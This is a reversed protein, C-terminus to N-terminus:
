KALVGDGVKVKGLHLHHPSRRRFKGSVGFASVALTALITQLGAADLLSDAICPFLALDLPVADSCISSVQLFVHFSRLVPKLM